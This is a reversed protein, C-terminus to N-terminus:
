KCKLYTSLHRNIQTHKLKRETDGKKIKEKYTSICLRTKKQMDNRSVFAACCYLQIIIFFKMNM